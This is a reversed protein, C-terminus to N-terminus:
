VADGKHASSRHLCVLSLDLLLAFSFAGDCILSSMFFVYFLCLVSMFFVYFLCLFSM